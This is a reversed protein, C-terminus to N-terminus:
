AAYDAKTVRKCLSTKPKIPLEAFSSIYVDKSQEFNWLM